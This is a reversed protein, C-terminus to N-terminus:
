PAAPTPPSPPQQAQLVADLQQKLRQVEAEAREARVLQAAGINKAQTLAQTSVDDNVRVYAQCQTLQDQVPVAPPTPTQALTVTPLAVALVVSWALYRSLHM